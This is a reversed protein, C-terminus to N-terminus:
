AITALYDDLREYTASMGELMGTKLAADRAEKSPFLLRQTITTQGDQESLLLTNLAEPFDGGWSETSVLREPPMIETYRGSM